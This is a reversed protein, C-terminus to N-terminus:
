REYEDKEIFKKSLGGWNPEVKNSQRIEKANKDLQAKTIM